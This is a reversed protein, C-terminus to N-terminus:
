YQSYQTVTLYGCLCVSVSVCDCVRVSISQPSIRSSGRPGTSRVLELEPGAGHAPTHLVGIVTRQRHRTAAERPARALDPGGHLRLANSQPPVHVAREVAGLQDSGHGHVSDRVTPGARKILCHPKPAVPLNSQLAVARCVRAGYLRVPAGLGRTAVYERSLLGPTRTQFATAIRRLHSPPYARLM